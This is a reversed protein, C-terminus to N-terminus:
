GSPTITSKKTCQKSYNTLQPWNGNVVAMAICYLVPATFLAPRVHQAPQIDYRVPEHMISDVVSGPFVACINHDPLSLIRLSCPMTPLAFGFTVATQFANFVVILRDFSVFHSLYTLYPINRKLILAYFISYSM